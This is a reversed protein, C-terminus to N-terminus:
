KFADKMKDLVSKPALPEKGLSRALERLLAKQPETLKKPVVVQVTIIL